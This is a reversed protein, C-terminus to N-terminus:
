TEIVDAMVDAAKVTRRRSRLQEAAEDLEARQPRAHHHIGPLRVADDVRGPHVALHQRLDLCNQVQAMRQQGIEVRLHPACGGLMDRRDPRHESIKGAIGGRAIDLVGEHQTRIQEDRRHEFLVRRRALDVQGCM